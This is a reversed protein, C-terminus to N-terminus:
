KLEGLKKEATARRIRGDAVQVCLDALQKFFVPELKDEYLPVINELTELRDQMPLKEDSALDLLKTIAEQRIPAAAADEAQAQPPEGDSAAAQGASPSAAPTEPEPKKDVEPKAALADMAKETSAAETKLPPFTEDVNAMGDNIGKIMAVALAIDHVLWEYQPRGIVAEVRNIAVGLKAIEDGTRSRWGEIDGKIKTILSKRAEEVAYDAYTQLANVIVNRIAKSQGISFDAETNRSADGGGIKSRGKQQRFQRTMAAGTELDIFRASIEWFDIGENSVWPDVDCSGYTRWLDNALKITPGEAYTTKGTKRDKFPISYYWDHGAASALAKLTALVEAPVRRVAVQQAGHIMPPPSTKIIAPLMQQKPTVQAAFEDLASQRESIAENM